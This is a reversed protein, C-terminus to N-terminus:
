GVHTQEAFRQRIVDCYAPDIEVSICKRNLRECAILTSGSGAFPDLILDGRRSSNQLLRELLAVPKATPHVTNKSPRDYFLTSTQANDGYWRTGAHRGRGPRGKGPKWGYLFVEHQLHYDSHGLVPSNKVWVLEQHLQWQANSIASRFDASRPGSPSAVYFRGCPAFISDVAAFAEGLLEPLGDPSDNAITLRRPTKGEYALGYPPDALLV